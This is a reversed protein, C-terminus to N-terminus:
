STPLSIILEAGIYEKNNYEYNRNKAEVVGNMGNVILDYTLHLGLGTGLSKHKTTFYPEFIQPLVNKPIGGANDRIIIIAKDNEISTSLFIYKEEINKELLADKSNNIISMLCQILENEYGDILIDEDIDIIVKINNSKLRGEVLHLFSKINNQLSFVKKIRDGSIFNRFDEITQSLYQANDNIVECTNKFDEDTLLGYEKQMQMGTIGTSIVSLPQRWQHSINGIMEGMSALKSQEYLQKDKNQLEELRRDLTANTIIWRKKISLYYLVSVLSVLLLFIIVVLIYIEGHSVNIYISDHPNHEYIFTNLDVDEKILGLVKYIDVIKQLKYSDLCGIKDTEHHHVLTKLVEAESVLAILSKNQTNYKKHIIKSTKGINNFAYEWGKLTAEFFAKTLKPNNKIFESSSYLIDSYFDFGYDKPDFIKYKINKDDLVIPENSLYSAMIDTKNTILDNINFSHKQLELDTLDLKHSNLMATISATEQADNTIMIRKNKLDELKNISVDTTLLMLPSNQFIAGLAVIDKGNAKEILLSSRGIAFDVKDNEIMNSLKMGYEFEKLAVEIGADKYYGLEKAVYYGAFQFQHKWSLQVSVKELNNDAFLFTHFLFLISFLKKYNMCIEKIKEIIM